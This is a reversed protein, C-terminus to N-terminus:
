GPRIVGDSCSQGDVGAFSLGMYDLEVVEDCIARYTRLGGVYPLFVRSKGPVNAGMYWSDALPFLTLDACDNVHQVWGTEATATPEVADFGATGMHDICDCIWDVHQEICLVMNALVSPSGPGTIMFMNPFGGVTLGLYTRPGEAWKERITIGGRGAIDVAVIAGTMADFGTAFVLTDFEFSEGATDLGLETISDIPDKRLDVLRVHPLNYTEFYGSDLCPRKTGVPYQTPCLSEATERDQVISRIKHHFFGALADNAELNAFSDSFAGIAFLEGSKWVQEYRAQREDESVDFTGVHSRLMPVGAPSQRAAERYADRDVEIAALKAAPIEGNLAPISFSPTRQFVTLEAAQEAILPISQVASSGTGIVAVRRGTFDVGDHPWSSTYYVDGGFGDAGAIDPTKPQSLCGTAMVYFRCTLKEGADTELHWLRSDEHWEASEVRTSFDIDRRLDLRDAVWELYSLIEPQTAFKESWQWETELDADFSYSYDISMVDCRAGPYRNWYWTGGVGDAAEFVRTSLGMGRLRHLMYLGAFGAGVVAVDVDPEGALRGDSTV